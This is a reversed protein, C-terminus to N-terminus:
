RMARLGFKQAAVAWLSQPPIVGEETVYGNIYRASTVDFAFNEIMVNPPADAWVEKPDRKEIEVRAGYFTLPQFKHLEACSYFSVDHVRAIRAITSTGIKNILDGVATIADAGVLVLDAKKMYYNTAGDVALTTKIGYTALEKASIRGQFLPRTEFCVVDFNKGEDFAKKLVAMVSSSHCYTLIRMGDQILRSGNLALRLKNKEWEQEYEKIEDLIVKKLESVDTDPKAKIQSFAYSLLDLTENFTMPETPRVSLIASAVDAIEKLLAEKSKADSHQITIKIAELAKRAVNRAGQIKLAKIDSIIRQVERYM